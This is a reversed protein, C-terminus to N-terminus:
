GPTDPSFTGDGSPITGGPFIKGNLIFMTGRPVQPSASEFPNVGDFRRFTRGDNCVDLTLTIDEHKSAQEEASQSRAAPVAWVLGLVFLSFLLRKMTVELQLCTGQKILRSSPRFVPM